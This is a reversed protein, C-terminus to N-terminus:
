AFASASGPGEKTIMIWKMGLGRTQPIDQTQPGFFIEPHPKYEIGILASHFIDYFSDPLM